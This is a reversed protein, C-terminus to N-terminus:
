VSLKTVIRDARKQRGRLIRNLRIEFAFEGRAVADGEILEERDRVHRNSAKEVVQPAAAVFLAVHSLENRGEVGARNLSQHAAREDADIPLPPEVVAVEILHEFEANVRRKRM